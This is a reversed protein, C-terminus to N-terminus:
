GGQLVLWMEESRGDASECVGYWLRVGERREGLGKWAADHEAEGGEGTLSGPRWVTRSVSPMQAGGSSGGTTPGGWERGGGGGGQQELWMEESEQGSAASGLLLCPFLSLDLWVPFDGIAVQSQLDM